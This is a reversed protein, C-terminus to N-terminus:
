PGGRGRGGPRGGGTLLSGHKVGHEDGVAALDGAAHQAGGAVFAVARDRHIGLGVGARGVHQEGVFRAADPQARDALRVQRDGTDERGRDRAAAM